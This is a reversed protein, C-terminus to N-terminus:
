RLRRVAVFAIVAVAAIAVVILVISPVQGTTPEAPEESGASGLLAAKEESIQEGTVGDYLAYLAEDGSYHKVLYVPYLGGSTLLWARQISSAPVGAKAAVADVGISFNGLARVAGKRLSFLNDAIGVTRQYRSITLGAGLKTSVIIPYGKYKLNKIMINHENDPSVSHKYEYEIGSSNLIERVKESYAVADAWIKDLLKDNEEHKVTIAISAIDLNKNVRVNARVETNGTVWKIKYSKLGDVDYLAKAYKLVAGNALVNYISPLNDKLYSLAKAAVEEAPTPDIHTNKDGVFAAAYDSNYDILDYYYTTPSTFYVVYLNIGNERASDLIAEYISEGEVISYYLTDNIFGIVSPDNDVSTTFGIFVRGAWYYDYPTDITSFKYAYLWSDTVGIAPAGAGASDCGIMFVLHPLDIISKTRTYPAIDTAYIKIAGDVAWENPYAVTGLSYGGFETPEYYSGGTDYGHHGFTMLMGGAPPNILKNSVYNVLTDPDYPITWLYSLIDTKYITKGLPTFQNLINNLSKKTDTFLPKEVADLPYYIFRDGDTGLIVSYQNFVYSHTPISSLAAMITIGIIALATATPLLKKNM